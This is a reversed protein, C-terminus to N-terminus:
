PGKGRMIRTLGDIDVAPDAPCSKDATAADYAQRLADSTEREADLQTQLDSASQAAQETLRLAATLRQSEAKWYAADCATDRVKWGGGFGIVLAALVGGAILYLRMM